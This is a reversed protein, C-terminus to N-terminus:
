IHFVLAIIFNWHVGLLTIQAECMHCGGVCLSGWDDWMDPLLDHGQALQEIEKKDFYSLKVM